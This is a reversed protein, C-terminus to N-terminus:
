GPRRELVEDLFSRMAAWSRRAAAADYQIGAQPLNAGPYTFAHMAHGHAHIQWDAKAETLERALALVDAPPAMPDEWGHLVLVSATIPAQPGLNPPHLLGHFSVVGKLGPPASRALDLACLGGFCYGIAAIRDPDALPHRRAAAIGAELRRRLLGRDEIFPAMLRSNDEMEGGRVGKGYVDLAFGVYGLGALEAAKEHMAENLGAWAHALLVCPRKAASSADHAVYAECVTEGETYELRETHIHPSPKPPM